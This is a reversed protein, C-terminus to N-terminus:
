KRKISLEIARKTGSKNSGNREGESMNIWMPQYNQIGRSKLKEKRRELM